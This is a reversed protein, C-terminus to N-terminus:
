DGSVSEPLQPMELEDRVRLSIARQLSPLIARLAEDGKAAKVFEEYFISGLKRLIQEAQAVTIYFNKAALVRIAREQASSLTRICSNLQEIKRLDYRDDNFQRMLEEITVRLTALEQRADFIDPDDVYQQVKSLLNDNSTDQWVPTNGGHMTCKGLGPHDTQYGAPQQCKSGKATPANCKLAKTPANAKVM